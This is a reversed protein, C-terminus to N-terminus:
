IDPLVAPTTHTYRLVSARERSWQQRLLCHRVYKHTRARGSSHTYLHSPTPAPASAHAQVRTAKSIWWAVRHLIETQPREPEVLIKSM